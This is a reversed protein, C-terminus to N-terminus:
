ARGPESQAARIAEELRPLNRRLKEIVQRAGSTGLGSVALRLTLSVLADLVIGVAVPPGSVIFEDLRAIMELVADQDQERSVIALQPPRDAM